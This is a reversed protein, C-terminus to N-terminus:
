RTENKRKAEKQIDLLSDAVQKEKKKPELKRKKEIQEERKKKKAEKNMKSLSEDVVTKTL